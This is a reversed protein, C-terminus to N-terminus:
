FHSVKFLLDLDCSRIMSQFGPWPWLIPDYNNTQRFSTCHNVLFGIMQVQIYCTEEKARTGDPFLIVHLDKKWSLPKCPLCHHNLEGSCWGYYSWKNSNKEWICTKNLFWSCSAKKHWSLMITIQLSCPKM